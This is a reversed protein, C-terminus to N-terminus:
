APSYRSVFHLTGQMLREVDEKKLSEKNHAADNGVSALATMNLMMSQDYAVSECKYLAQNFDSITPRDKEPMCAAGRCLERLKEELVARFIVGAALFYGQEFLHQGQAYLDACAEAVVLSRYSELLGEEIAFKITELAALPGEVESVVIVIGNHSLRRAWPALMAGGISRLLILDNSWRRLANRDEIYGSYSSAIIDRAERILKDVLDVIKQPQRM